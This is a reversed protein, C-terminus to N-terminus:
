GGSLSEREWATVVEESSGPAGFLMGGASDCRARGAGYFAQRM